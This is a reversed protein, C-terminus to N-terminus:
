NVQMKEVNKITLKTLRGFTKLNVSEKITFFVKKFCGIPCRGTAHKQRSTNEKNGIVAITRQPSHSHGTSKSSKLGESSKFKITYM